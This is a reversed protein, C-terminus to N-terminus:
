WMKVATVTTLVHIPTVGKTCTHIHTHTHAHTHTQTHAHAAHTHVSVMIQQAGTDTLQEVWLLANDPRVNTSNLPEFGVYLIYNVFGYTQEPQNWFLNLALTGNDYLVFNDLSFDKPPSPSPPTTDFKCTQLLPLPQSRPVRHSRLTHLQSTILPCSLILSLSFSLSTISLNSLM